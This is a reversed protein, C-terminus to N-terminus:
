RCWLSVKPAAQAQMWMLRPCRALLAGCTAPVPVSLLALRGM